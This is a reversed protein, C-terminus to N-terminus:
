LARRFFRPLQRRGTTVDAVRAAPMGDGSPMPSQHNLKELAGREAVMFGADRRPRLLAGIAAAFLAFAFGIALAGIISAIM